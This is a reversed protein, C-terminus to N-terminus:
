RGRRALEANRRHMWEDASGNEDNVDFVGSSSGGVPSPPKPASTKRPAKPTGNSAAKHSINILERSAEQGSMRSLARTEDHHTVLYYVVDASNPLSQIFAAQSDSVDVQAAAANRAAQELDPYYNKAEAVRQAHAQADREMQVMGQIDAHTLQTGNFQGIPQPPQIARNGEHYESQYLAAEQLKTQKQLTLNAIEQNKWDDLNGERAERWQEAPLDDWGPASPDDRLDNLRQLQAIRVDLSVIEKATKTYAKRMTSLSETERSSLTAEEREANLTALEGDIKKRDNEADRLDDLYAAAEDRPKSFLERREDADLGKIQKQYAGFDLGLAQKLEQNGDIEETREDRWALAEQEEPTTQHASFWELDVTSTAATNGDFQDTM